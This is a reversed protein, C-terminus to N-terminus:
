ETVPKSETQGIEIDEKKSNSVDTRCATANKTTKKKQRYRVYERVYFVVMLIMILGLVGMITYAVHLRAQEITQLQYLDAIESQTITHVKQLTKEILAKYESPVNDWVFPQPVRILTDISMRTTFDQYNRYVGQPLNLRCGKPIKALTAMGFKYQEHHSTNACVISGSEDHPAVVILREHDIQYVIDTSTSFVKTCLQEIKADNKAYLSGLCTSELVNHKVLQNSCVQLEQTPYFHCHDLDTLVIGQFDNGSAVALFSEKATQTLFLEPKIQIPLAVYKYLRFLRKEVLPLHILTHISGDKVTYSIKSHYPNIRVVELGKGIAMAQVRGLAHDFDKQELMLPSLRGQVLLLLSVIFDDVGQEYFTVQDLLKDRLEIAQQRQDIVDQEEGLLGLVRDFLNSNEILVSILGSQKELKHLVVGLNKEAQAKIRNIQSVSYVSLGTSLLGSMGLLAAGTALIQRKARRRVLTQIQRKKREQMAPPTRLLALDRKSSSIPEVVPSASDVRDKTDESAKRADPKEIDFDLPELVADLHAMAPHIDPPPPQQQERTLQEQQQRREEQVRAKPRKERPEHHFNLAEQFYHIAEEPTRDLVDMEHKGRIPRPTTRRAASPRRRIRPIEDPPAAIIRQINIGFASAIKNLRGELHDLRRLAIKKVHRAMKEFEKGAKAISAKMGEEVQSRFQYHIQHAEQVDISFAIHGIEDGVALGGAPVFIPGMIQDVGTSPQDFQLEFAFHSANGMESHSIKVNAAAIRILLVILNVVFPTM